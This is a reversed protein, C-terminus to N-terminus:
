FFHHPLQNKWSFYHLQSEQPRFGAHSLLVESLFVLMNKQLFLLAASKMDSSIIINPNRPFAVAHRRM